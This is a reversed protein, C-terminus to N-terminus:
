IIKEYRSHILDFSHQSLENKGPFDKPDLVPLVSLEVVVEKHTMFKLAHAGFGMDGYWFVSDRNKLSVKEGNVSRYNLCVPLVKSDANFAAQFLPRRFRIVTEGNTSTAEPFIVVNLGSRLAEAIEGVEGGIGKRSRREVFLCGGLLCLQGLFPTEKMEMSTVFCTPFNSSITLIDIYSLHNGIILYNENEKLPPFNKIVKVRFLFLACKCVFSVLHILRARARTFSGASFLLIVLASIFYFIALIFFAAFRLCLSFFGM